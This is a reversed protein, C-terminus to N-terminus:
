PRLNNNRCIRKRGGDVFQVRRQDLVEGEAHVVKQTCEALTHEARSEVNQVSLQYEQRLM